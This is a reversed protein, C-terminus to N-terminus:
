AAEAMGAPIEAFGRQALARDDREWPHFGPRYYALYALFVQRLMGPRVFLYRLVSLWTRPRNIGAQRFIDAMNRTVTDFLMVSGLRMAMTRLM